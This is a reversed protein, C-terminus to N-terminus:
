YSQNFLQNKEINNIFLSTLHHLMTPSFPDSHTNPRRNIYIITFIYIGKM